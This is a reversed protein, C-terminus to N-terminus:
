QILRKTGTEDLGSEQREILVVACQDLLNFFKEVRKQGFIFPNSEENKRNRLKEMTFLSDDVFPHNSILVDVKMEKIYSMFKAVSDRYVKKDALSGVVNTNGYTAWMHPKGDDFVKAIYSLGGGNVTRPTHVIKITTEGLTIEGGDKGIIDQEPWLMYNNNLSGNKAKDKAIAAQNWEEKSMVIKTGYKEQFYKAGGVHDPGAHTILIYKIKAPDLGLKKMDPIIYDEPMYSYGSDIMIYGDVTTFIFSGIDTGGVYYLNDFLKTPEVRVESGPVLHVQPLDILAKSQQNFTVLLSKDNGAINRAKELEAVIEPTDLRNKADILPAGIMAFSLTLYLLISTINLIQKAVSGKKTIMKNFTKNEM